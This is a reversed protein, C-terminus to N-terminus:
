AQGHTLSFRKLGNGNSGAELVDKSAARELGSSVPMSSTDNGNGCPLADGYVLAVTAALSTVSTIRGMLARLQQTNLQVAFKETQVHSIVVMPAFMAAIRFM